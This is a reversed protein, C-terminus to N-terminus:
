GPRASRSSRTSRRGLRLLREDWQAGVSAMWAMAEGMPEPNLMYRLERGERRSAVLGARDLAALHKAVAQRSIPLEGALRSASAPERALRGIVARRTPDALAAFVADVDM